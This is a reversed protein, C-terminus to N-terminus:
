VVRPQHGFKMFFLLVVDTTHNQETTKEQRKKVRDRQMKQAKKSVDGNLNEIILFTFWKVRRQSPFVRKDGREGQQGKFPSRMKQGSLLMIIHQQFFRAHAIIIPQAFQLLVM